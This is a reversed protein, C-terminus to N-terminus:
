RRRSMVSFRGTSTQMITSKPVPIVLIHWGPRRLPNAMATRSSDFMHMTSSIIRRILRAHRWATDRKALFEAVKDHKVKTDGTENMPFRFFALKKGAARMLPMVASEGRVIEGEVQEVSLHNIDPHSCTHNGLDFGHSIWERLIRTGSTSGLSEIRKQIVFGTVPVHHAQFGVLLDFNIKEVASTRDGVNAEPLVCPLDDLTIAVTRQQGLGLSAYVALAVAGYVFGPGRM